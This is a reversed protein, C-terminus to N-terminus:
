LAARKHLTEEIDKSIKDIAFGIGKCQNESMDPNVVVSVIRSMLEKSFSVPDGKPPSVGTLKWPNLKTTIGRQYAMLPFTTTYKFQTFYDMSVGEKKSLELFGSNHAGHYVFNNFWRVGPIGEAQIAEFFFKAMDFSPFIFGIEYGTDGEPDHSKIFHWPGKSTISKLILARNRRIPQLLVSHLKKLNAWGIAASVENMKFNMFPFIEVQCTLINPGCYM